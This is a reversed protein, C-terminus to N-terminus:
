LFPMCVNREKNSSPTTTPKHHPLMSKAYHTIMMDKNLKPTHPDIMLQIQEIPFATSYVNGIITTYM